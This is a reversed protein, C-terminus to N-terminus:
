VRDMKRHSERLNPILESLLGLAGNEEEGEKTQFNRKTGSGTRGRSV